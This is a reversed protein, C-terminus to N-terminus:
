RKPDRISKLSRECVRFQGDALWSSHLRHDLLAARLLALPIQFDKLAAAFDSVWAAGCDPCVEPAISEAETRATSDLPESPGSRGDGAVTQTVTISIDRQEVKVTVRRIRKM